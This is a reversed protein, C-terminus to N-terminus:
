YARLERLFGSWRDLPAWPLERRIRDAPYRLLPADTPPPLVPRGAAGHVAALYAATDGAGEAVNFARGDKMGAAAHAALAIAQVLNDVHVYPIQRFPLLCRDAQRARAVAGPGWRSRPHMSLILTPRFIIAPLGM